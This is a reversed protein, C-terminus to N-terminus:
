RTSPRSRTARCRRPERRASEHHVSGRDGVSNFRVGQFKSPLLGASWQRAAIPQMQGGNGQSSSCSSARASEGDGRGTRVAGVLGHEAPRHHDIRQEHVHAGPRSQDARDVDIARHLDRRHHRRHASVARLGDTGVQRVAQLRADTRLLHAAAGPAARDATRKTLSEPMPKGNMEALKPKYDFTELHSPGGAQYLLHRAKGKAAFTSRTSSAARRRAPPRRAAASSGLTLLSNLAVM